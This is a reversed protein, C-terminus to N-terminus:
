LQGAEWREEFERQARIYHNACEVLQESSPNGECAAPRHYVRAWARLKHQVEEATPPLQPKTASQALCLVSPLEPKVIRRVVLEAARGSAAVASATLVANGMRACVLDIIAPISSMECAIDLAVSTGIMPQDFNGFRNRLM